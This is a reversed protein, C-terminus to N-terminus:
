KGAQASKTQKENGFGKEARAYEVQSKPQCGTHKKHIKISLRVSASLRLPLLFPMAFRM